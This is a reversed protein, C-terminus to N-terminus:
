KSKQSANQILQYLKKEAQDPLNLKNFASKIQLYKKELGTFVIHFNTWTLDDQKIVQAIQKEEAWQANKLQENHLTSPLPVLIMPLKAVILELITNAGARSLVLKTHQYLWALDPENLWSLVFYKNQNAGLVKNAKQKLDQQYRNHLNDRGCQHVVIFEETLALLNEKVFQNLVLSGQNGGMVLLIPKKSTTKFWSPREESKFVQKRLPNGTVTLKKSQDFFIKSEAFSLAVKDALNAILQNAKGIVLTQEHTVIPVQSIKAALALPVALYGGFSLFVDPKEQQFIKIAQYLSTIFFVPQSFFNGVTNFVLKPADFFIFKVQRKTVEQHEIAKQKLQTQSYKRGVFVIQDQPYNVKIYDIMALAPTLHGGSILIKM